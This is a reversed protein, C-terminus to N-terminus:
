RRRSGLDLAAQRRHSAPDLAVPDVLARVAADTPPTSVGVAPLWLTAAFAAAALSWTWAVGSRRQWLWALAWGVLAMAFPATGVASNTWIPRSAAAFPLYGSLFLLALAAATRDGDARWRWAALAFAPWVSLWAVPNAVGTFFTGPGPDAPVLEVYWIPAVFWRWAHVVEGPFGPLKTGPYGQHRVTEAAMSLQFRAWEALDHGRDFWPWWTLLYVAAPLLALSAVFLAVESRRAAGRELARTREWLLAASAVLVPFAASWKSAIGLGLLLGAGALRWPRPEARYAALAVIAAVPFSALYVDNIGQRSFDLHLPDIAVLAAAALAARATGGLALVFAGTAAVSATGFLVSWAKIGWPGDGFAGLSLQVLLDRLRPHNWMTPEPWGSATFNRATLGVLRDDGNLVQAGLWASRLLFSGATVAGLAIWSARPIRTSM